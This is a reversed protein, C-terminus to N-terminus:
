GAAERVDIKGTVAASILATRFESLHAIARRIEDILRQISEHIRSCFSAIHHQEGAPAVAVLLQKIKGVNIRNFTSGVMMADLQSMVAPSRLLFVLFRQDQEESRILSVDQGMCFPEQTTVLAAAGITANRSYIIDGPRPGRGGEIMQRYEDLSTRKASSLDVELGQVEGISAVAFGDDLFPATRHKCDIVQWWRALAGVDWHAPIQGLWEVGSDKLPANPDLGRTVARTILATRKEQLLDILREKKAVLADIKATERDLFAAISCQEELLPLAVKRAATATLNM